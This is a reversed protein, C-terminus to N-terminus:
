WVDLVRVRMDASEVRYSVHLLAVYLLRDGYFYTGKVEPDIAFERDVRNSANRVAQRDAAAMWIAALANQAANEWVVMYRM